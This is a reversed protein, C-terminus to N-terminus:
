DSNSLLQSFGEKQDMSTNERKSVWNKQRNKFNTFDFNSICGKAMSNFYM